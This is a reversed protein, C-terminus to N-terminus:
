IVLNARLIMKYLSQWASSIQPQSSGFSYDHLQALDGLLFINNEADNGLLDFIFYADRSYLGNMLLTAYTAIVAENFQPAEKFYTADSYQSQNPIDLISEKCAIISLMLVATMVFIKKKM